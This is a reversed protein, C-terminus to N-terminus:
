RVPSVNVMAGFLDDPLFPKRILMLPIKERELTERSEKALEALNPDGSMLVAGVVKYRERLATVLLEAGTMEPLHYDTVLIWRPAPDQHLVELALRPDSTRTVTYYLSLLDSIRDRLEPDDEIVLIGFQSSDM